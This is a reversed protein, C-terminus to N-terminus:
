GFFCSEGIRNVHAVHNQTFAQRRVFRQLHIPQEDLILLKKALSLLQSLFNQFLQRPSSRFGEQGKDHEPVKLNRLVQTNPPTGAKPKRPSSKGHVENTGVRASVASTSMRTSTPGFTKATATCNCCLITM